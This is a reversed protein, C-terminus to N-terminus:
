PVGIDEGFAARLQALAPNDPFRRRLLLVYNGAVRRTSAHDDGLAARLVELAHRYLSEAEEHRGTVALLGALNNLRTAYDPHGEGLTERSIELAQRNLREAEEYRRM